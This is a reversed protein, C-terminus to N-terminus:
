IMALLSRCEVNLSNNFKLLLKLQKMNMWHYLPLEEILSKEGCRLLINRNAERYFRGGEESQMTDVITRGDSAELLDSVFPPREGKQYSGTICQVTPACELLDMNGSEMKLQVLFHMVRDLERVLFGVIGPDIQRVIPQDWFHVERNAASVRLGIVSFFKGEV